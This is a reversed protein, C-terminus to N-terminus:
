PKVPWLPRQLKIQMTAQLPGRGGRAAHNQEIYNVLEYVLNLEQPTLGGLSLTNASSLGLLYDSSVRFLRAMDILYGATPLNVGQEWASATARTVNLRRAFEAQSM